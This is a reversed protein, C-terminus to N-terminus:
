KTEFQLNKEELVKQEEYNLIGTEGEAVLYVAEKWLDKRNEHLFDFNLRQHDELGVVWLRRNLSRDKIFRSKNTTASFGQRLAYRQPKRAWAMRVDVFQSTLLQKFTEQSRVHDLVSLEDFCAITKGVISEVFKQPNRINCLVEGTRNSFPEPLLERFFKTKGIGPAGQLTLCGDFSSGPELARKTTGIIWKRFLFNSHQRHEEKLSNGFSKTLFSDIVSENRPNWGAFEKKFKLSTLDSLDLFNLAADFHGSVSPSVIGTERGFQNILHVKTSPTIPNGGFFVQGNEEDKLIKGATTRSNVLWEHVFVSSSKFQIKDKKDLTFHETEFGIKEAAERHADDASKSTKDEIFDKARKKLESTVLSKGASFLVSAIIDGINKGKAM